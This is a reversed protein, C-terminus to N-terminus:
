RIYPASNPLGFVVSILLIITLLNQYNTM